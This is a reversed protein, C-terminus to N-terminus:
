NCDIRVRNASNHRPAEDALERKAAARAAIHGILSLSDLNSSCIDQDDEAAACLALVTNIRRFISVEFNVLNALRQDGYFIGKPM